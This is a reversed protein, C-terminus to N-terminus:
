QVVLTLPVSRALGASSGTVSLNYTGSPTPYSSGGGGGGSGGGTSPIEREAGCGGMGVLVFLVVLGWALRRRRFMLVMPLGLALVIGSVRWPAIAGPELRALVGTQVTV